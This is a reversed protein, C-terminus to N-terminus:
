RKCITYLMKGPVVMGAECALRYAQHTMGLVDPFYIGLFVFGTTFHRHPNFLGIQYSPAM